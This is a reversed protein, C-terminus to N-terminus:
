DKSTGWDLVRNPVAALPSGDVLGSLHFGISKPTGELELGIFMKRGAPLTDLFIEGDQFMRKPSVSSIAVASGEPAHVRIAALEWPLSEVRIGILLSSATEAVRWVCIEVRETLHRIAPDGWDRVVAIWPSDGLQRLSYEVETQDSERSSLALSLRERLSRLRRREHEQIDAAIPAGRFIADRNWWIVMALPTLLLLGALMYFERATHSLDVFENEEPVYPGNYPLSFEYAETGGEQGMCRLGCDIRMAHVGPPVIMMSGDTSNVVEGTHQELTMLTFTVSSDGIKQVRVYSGNEETVSFAYVDITDFGDLTGRIVAADLNLIQWRSDINGQSWIADPADGILDGDGSELSRLM